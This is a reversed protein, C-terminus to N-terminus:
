TVATAQRQRVLSRHPRSTTTLKRSGTSRRQGSLARARACTVCPASDTRACSLMAEAVKTQVFFSESECLTYAQWAPATWPWHEEKVVVGVDAVRKLYLGLGYVIM